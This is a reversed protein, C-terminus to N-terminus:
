HGDPVLTLYPAGLATEAATDGDGDGRSVFRARSVLQRSRSVTERAILFEESLANRLERCREIQPALMSLQRELRTRAGAWEERAQAEVRGGRQFDDDARELMPLMSRVGLYIADVFSREIPAQLLQAGQEDRVGISWGAWRRPTAPHRPNLLDRVTAQAEERAVAADPLEIGEHDVFTKKGFSLDFFYIPM